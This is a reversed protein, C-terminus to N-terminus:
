PQHTNTQHVIPKLVVAKYKRHEKIAETNYDKKYYTMSGGRDQRDSLNKRLREPFLLFQIARKNVHFMRAIGNISHGKAYWYHVMEKQCPLLKTRRDM